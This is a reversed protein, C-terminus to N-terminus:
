DALLQRLVAVDPVGARIHPGRPFRKGLPCAAGESRRGARGSGKGGHEGRGEADDPGDAAHDPQHGPQEAGRFLGFLGSRAVLDGDVGAREVHAADIEVFRGGRGAHAARGSRVESHVGPHDIGVHGLGDVVGELLRGLVELVEALGEADRGAVQEGHQGHRLHGDGLPLEVAVDAVRAVDHGELGEVAGAEPTREVRYGFLVLGIDVFELAEGVGVLEHAAVGLRIAVIKLGQRADRGVVDGRDALDVGLRREAGGLGDHGHGRGHPGGGVLQGLQRGVGVVAGLGQLDRVFLERFDQLGVVGALQDVSHAALVCELREHGIQDLVGEVADLGVLFVGGVIGALRTVGDGLQAPGADGDVVEPLLEVRGHLARQRYVLKLFPGVGGAPHVSQVHHGVGQVIPGVGHRLAVLVEIDPREFCLSEVILGLQRFHERSGLLLQGLGALGPVIRGVELTEGLHLRQFVRGLDGLVGLVVGLLQERGALTVGRGDAVIGREDGDGHFLVSLLQLVERFFEIPGRTRGFFPQKLGDLGRLRRFDQGHGLLDALRELRSGLAHLAVERRAPGGDGAIVLLGLGQLHDRPELVLQVLGVLVAQVRVQNALQHLHLEVLQGLVPRIGDVLHLGVKGVQVLLLGVQEARQGAIRLRGHLLQGREKGPVLGSLIVQAVGDEVMDRRDGIGDVVHDVVNVVRNVLDPRALVVGRVRGILDRGVGQGIVVLLKGEGGRAVGLGHAVDALVGRAVERRDFGGSGVLAHVVGGPVVHGRRQRGQGRARGPRPAVEAVNGLLDRIVLDSSRLFLQVAGLHRM